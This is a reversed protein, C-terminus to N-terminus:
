GSRARVRDRSTVEAGLGPQPYHRSREASTCRGGGPAVQQLNGVAQVGARRLVECM